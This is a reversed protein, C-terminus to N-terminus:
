KTFIFLSEIRMSDVDFLHLTYTMYYTKLIFEFGQIYDCLTLFMIGIQLLWSNKKENLYFSYQVIYVKQRCADFVFHM